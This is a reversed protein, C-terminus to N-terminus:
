LGNKLIANSTTQLRIVALKLGDIDKQKYKGKQLKKIINEVAACDDRLQLRATLDISRERALKRTDDVLTQGNVALVKVEAPLQNLGRMDKM